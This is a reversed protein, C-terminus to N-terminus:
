GGVQFIPLETNSIGPTTNYSDTASPNTSLFSPSKTRIPQPSSSSVPPSSGSTVSSEDCPSRPFLSFWQSSKETLTKSLQDYHLSSQPSQTVWHISKLQTASLLFPVATDLKDMLGQQTPVIQSAPYSPYSATTPVKFSHSNQTNIDSDQGMKGVELLKSLKSLSGPKQLFLNDKDQQSATDNDTSQTSSSVVPKTQELQEGKVRIVETAWQRRREEEEVECGLYCLIFVIDFVFFFDTLIKIRFVSFLSWLLCRNQKAGESSETGEVFIGSCQPLVWYRRKYRDQGIM